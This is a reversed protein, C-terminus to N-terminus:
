YERDTDERTEEQTQVQILEIPRKRHDIVMVPSTGAAVACDKLAPCSVCIALELYYTM